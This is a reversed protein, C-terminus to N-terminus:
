AAAAAAQRGAMLISAHMGAPAAGDKSHSTLLNWVMDDDFSFRCVLLSSAALKLLQATSLNEIINAV